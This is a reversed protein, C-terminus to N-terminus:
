AIAKRQHYKFGLYSVCDKIASLGEILIEEQGLNSLASKKARSLALLALMVPNTEGEGFQVSAKQIYIKAQDFMERYSRDSRILELNLSNLQKVVQEIEVIHTSVESNRSIIEKAVESACNKCDDLFEDSSISQSKLHKKIREKDFDFFRVMREMQLLLIVYDTINSQKKELLLSM